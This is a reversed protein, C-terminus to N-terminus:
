HSLWVWQRGLMCSLAGYAWAAWCCSAHHCWSMKSLAQQWGEVAAHLARVRARVRACACQAHGHTVCICGGVWLYLMRGTGVGM